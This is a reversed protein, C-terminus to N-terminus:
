RSLSDNGRAIEDVFLTVDKRDTFVERKTLLPDSKHFRVNIMGNVASENNFRPDSDNAERTDLYRSQRDFETMIM